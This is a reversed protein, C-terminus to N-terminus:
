VFYIATNIAPHIAEWIRLLLPRTLAWLAAMVPRIIRWDASAAAAVV